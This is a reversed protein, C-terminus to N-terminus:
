KAESLMMAARGEIAAIWSYDPKAELQERTDSELTQCAAELAVEHRKMEQAVLDTFNSEELVRAMVDAEVTAHAAAELQQSLVKLPPVLKQSEREAFKRDLWQIFQATTMANLEIRASQLWRRWYPPVYDAVTKPKKPTGTEEVGLEMAVGESPELGLNVIEIRRAPRAKTADQLGQYIMTGYADADHVCYVELEQATDGLLDIMDRVARTAYGKSTLLACDHREPWGADILLQFFGEKEIYLVKNFNWDPRAYREVQLTGMSIEEGTHPHRLTGRADRYIGPLDFGREDEISDVVRTFNEYQLEKGLESLVFPRVQYFLQRVSYRSAGNDSARAVAEDIVARIIAAESRAKLDGSLKPRKNKASKAVAPIVKLLADLFESFDPEKGESTIPMYPTQVNVVLAVPARGVRFSHQLGCDFLGIETKDKLRQIHVGSAVPTRNVCFAVTDRAGDALVQAWCEVVFPLQARLVGRASQPEFSGEDRAYGPLVGDHFAGVYGLRKAAVPKAHQRAAALLAASEERSLSAAMRGSCGAAKAIRGAKPSACGDLMDVLDRAYRDGFARCLEFFADEDYWYPSSKGAYTLADAMARATDTWRLDRRTFALGNNLRVEIVTGRTEPVAEISLLATSGDELPRLTLAQGRTIVRLHGETALVTGVVVRLGNGLAGRSPLRLQKSSTLPRNISFLAAIAEPTGEIGPGDNWVRLTGDDCVEAGCGAKGRDTMADLANDFLEKAVLRPLEKVPVGARQPLTGLSRFLAWDERIFMAM